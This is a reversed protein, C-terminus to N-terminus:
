LVSCFLMTGVEWVPLPNLNRKLNQLVFCVSDNFSARLLSVENLVIIHSFAYNCSTNIRIKVDRELRCKKTVVTSVYLVSFIIRYVLIRLQELTYGLAKNDPLYTEVHIESNQKRAYWFYLAEYKKFIQNYLVCM